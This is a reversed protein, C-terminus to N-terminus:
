RFLHAYPKQTEDDWGYSVVDFGLDQFVRVADDLQERSTPGYRGSCGNVYLRSSNTVDIWVEGGCSAPRGGTLNTHTIRGSMLKPTVAQALELIYPLDPQERFVWLHRSQPDDPIGSAGEAPAKVLFLVGDDPSLQRWEDDNNPVRRPPLPPYRTAFEHLTM